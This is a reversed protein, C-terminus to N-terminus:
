FNRLYRYVTRNAPQNHMIMITHTLTHTHTHKHTQAHSHTHRQAHKNYALYNESSGRVKDVLNLNAGNEVLLATAVDNRREISIM